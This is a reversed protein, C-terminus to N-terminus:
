VAESRARPYRSEPMHEGTSSFYVVRAISTAHDGIRELKQSALLLCTGATISSPTDSMLELLEDFLSQQLADITDERACVEQVMGPNQTVFGDLATRVMVTSESAMNELIRLPGRHAFGRTRPVQEAIRRACDGMREVLIGIKFSALIERLDDAMPARLAILRVCLREVEESMKDIQADAAIIQAAAVDDNTILAQTAKSIALETLGGMEAVVARIEEVDEDFAKVTHPDSNAMM